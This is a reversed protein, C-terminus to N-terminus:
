TRFPAFMLVSDIKVNKGSARWFTPSELTVDIVESPSGILM